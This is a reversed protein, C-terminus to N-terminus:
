NIARTTIFALLAAFVCVSAAIFSLAYFQQIFQGSAMLVCDATLCTSKTAAATTTAATAATTTAEGNNKSVQQAYLVIFVIAVIVVILVAAYLFKERRSHKRAFSVKDIGGDHEIHFADGSDIKKIYKASSM